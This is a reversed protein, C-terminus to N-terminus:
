FGGDFDLRRFRRFSISTRDGTRTDAAEVTVAEVTGAAEPTRPRRLRSIRLNPLPSISRRSRRNLFTSIGVASLIAGLRVNPRHSRPAGVRRPMAESAPVRGMVSARVARHRSAAIVEPESVPRTPRDPDGSPDDPEMLRKEPLREEPVRARL